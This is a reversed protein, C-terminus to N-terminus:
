EELAEILDRNTSGEPMCFPNMHGGSHALCKRIAKVIKARKPDKAVPENDSAKVNGGYAYPNGTWKSVPQEAWAPAAMAILTAALLITRM